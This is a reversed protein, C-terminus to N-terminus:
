AAALEQADKSASSSKRRESFRHIIADSLSFLDGGHVVLETVPLFSALIEAYTSVEPMYLWAEVRPAVLRLKDALVWGNQGPLDRNAVVLASDCISVLRLSEEVSETRVVKGGFQEVDAALRAYVEDRHEVLIVTQSVGSTREPTGLLRNACEPVSHEPITAAIPRQGTPEHAVLRGRCHGCALERELSEGEIEVPRDCVPCDFVYHSIQMMM